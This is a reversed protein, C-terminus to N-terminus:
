PKELLERLRNAGLSLRSKVTGIPIELAQAIEALSLDQYYRLVIAERQHEPLRHLAQIVQRAEQRQQIVDELGNASPLADLLDSDAALRTAARKYHDRALNTAIAYLWPKFPRPHQYRQLSGLLRLFTEQVLDEALSRDGGSRSATMRYLYGLLPSHHREVLPALNEIQGRQLGLLLDEDSPTPTHQASIRPSALM